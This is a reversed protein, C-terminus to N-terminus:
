RLDQISTEFFRAGGVDRCAEKMQDLGGFELQARRRAEDPTMGAAVYDAIQLELHFRLEADLKKETLGRSFFRQYWRM